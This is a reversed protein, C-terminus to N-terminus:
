KEGVVKNKLATKAKLKSDREKFKLEERKFALEKDQSKDAHARDLTKSMVDNRAISQKTMDDRLQVVDAQGDGDRDKETDVGTAQLAAVDLKNDRDLQQNMDDREAIKENAAIQTQQMQEQSEQASQQAEQDRQVKAEEGKRLIRETRAMSNSKFVNILGSMDIKDQQLAVQALAEIKNKVIKDESSNSVYVGYDTDNYIEGDITASIRVLDDTMYHITESKKATYKSVEVLQQLVQRKIENHKMFYHETVYSSNTVSAEVGSATENHHVDGARQASIGSVQAMLQEIKDLLGVYQVLSQSLTMDIAHAPNNNAINGQNRTGAKGEEFSNFFGINMTDFYYLWKKMPIGHSTPLQAMDMMMKKGGAKAIENEIRYWIINYLYQHPKLLDVLSRIESNTDNYTGGVYPLKCFSPDDITSMQIPSPNVDLYIDGGVKHGTWVESIWQWEVSDGSQKMEDTLKFTEPVRDVQEEGNEDVFTWFGIKLMSKWACSIVRVHDTQNASKDNSFLEHSTRKRTYAFGPQEGVSRTTNLEKEELDHVQKTTMFEGLEDIVQGRAMYREEVVWDSDEVCEVEPGRDWEVNEPNCVRPYPRNGISGVYYIEVGAVLAHEFGKQFKFKIRDLEIARKIVANGFEERVDSYSESYYKAVDDLSKFRPPEAEPDTIGLDREVIGQAVQLLDKMKKEDRVSIGEGGTSMVMPDFPRLIEEGKLRDVKQRILNIDRIRAPTKGKQDLNFPNLVYDYDASDFISNMLNYNTRMRSKHDLSRQSSAMGDIADICDEGYKGQKQSFPIAHRPM